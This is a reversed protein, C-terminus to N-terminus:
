CLWSQWFFWEGHHVEVSCRKWNYKMQGENDSCINLIAHEGPLSSAVTLEVVTLKQRLHQGAGFAQFIEKLSAVAKSAESLSDPQEM